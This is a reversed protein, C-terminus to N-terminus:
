SRLPPSGVRRDMWGPSPCPWSFCSASRDSGFGQGAIRDTVENIGEVVVAMHYATAHILRDRDLAMAVHGKWFLLDASEVPENDGLLRGVTDRQQGSDAPCEVGCALLAAQVLGSCDLGDCSNGGWLYPTGLYLEAVGATDAMPENLRRCHGRVVFQGDATELFEPHTKIVELASAFSVAMVPPSKMDPESYLHSSRACVAYNPATAAGLDSTAVYGVYGDRSAQGFAVDDVIDLVLFQEGFVLQRDMSSRSQDAWINTVKVVVQRLKGEVFRDAKVQGKLYSAAVRGNAPTLRRDTM